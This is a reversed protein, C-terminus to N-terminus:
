RERERKREGDRQRETERERECVCFCLRASVVCVWVYQGVVNCLIERGRKREKESVYM